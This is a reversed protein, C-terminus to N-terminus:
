PPIMNWTIGESPAYKSIRTNHAEFNFLAYLEKLQNRAGVFNSGNDSYIENCKGKRAIFRRFTAIFGDTTLDSVVELHVAKVALCVFVAVYTKM